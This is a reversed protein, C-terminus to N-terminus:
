EVGYIAYKTSALLFARDYIAGAFPFDINPFAKTRVILSVAEAPPRSSKDPGSAFRMRASVPKSTLATSIRGSSRGAMSDRRRRALSSPKLNTTVEPPVPSEGRSTVGSAVSATISLCTGHIASSIRISLRLIVGLAAKDLATEPMRWDVRIILKGPLTFPTRSHKVATRGIRDCATSTNFCDDKPHPSHISLKAEYTGIKRKMAIANRKGVAVKSTALSIRGLEPPFSLSIGYSHPTSGSESARWRYAM